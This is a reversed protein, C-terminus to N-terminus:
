YMLKTDLVNLLEGGALYRRLNECFLDVLRENERASNTASHPYLTVQPHTWLPSEVPLPEVRTVDLYAHAVQGSDLAVLLDEEVVASGRGINILVSGPQLAAFAAADLMNETEPTHPTILCVFDSAGLLEHLQDSRYLEDLGLDAPDVGATRRKNAIVRMDLLRALRGVETGINGYGVVGLTKGGLEDTVFTDWVRQEQQERALRTKKVHQLMSLLVFEALPRVHVGSATTFVANMRDLKRKVVLRGIGASSGQVWRVNPARVPLEDLGTYDFDFLIEAQGLLEEWREQGAASRELPAGIHDTPYRPEPLLDPHYQVDLRSDVQRIRDVLEPELYSCILVNKTM